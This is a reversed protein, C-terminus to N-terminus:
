AMVSHKTCRDVGDDPDDRSREGQELECSARNAASLFCSLYYRALQDRHIYKDFYDRANNAIRNREEDDALLRRCIPVLDSLDDKCFVVHKGDVLPEHLEVKPRPSVICVGVSLYDILRFCLDGNGPLDIGIKSRAMERLYRSTRVFQTGGVFGLDSAETLLSLARQRTEVGFRLGFRGYVNYLKPKTDCENRLKDLYRYQDRLSVTYGGPVIRRDGYGERLHQMKFYITADNLAPYCIRDEYDWHDIVVRHSEGRYEFHTVICGDFCSDQPIPAFEVRVIKSLGAILHQMWKRTENMRYVTPWTIVLDSHLADPLPWTPTSPQSRHENGFKWLLELSLDDIRKLARFYRTADM